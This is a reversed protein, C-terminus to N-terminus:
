KGGEQIVVAAYSALAEPTVYRRRGQKFTQLAGSNIARYLSTRSTSLISLADDMSYFLQYM